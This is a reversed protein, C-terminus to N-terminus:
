DIAEQRAWALSSERQTPASSLPSRLDHSFPSFRKHSDHPTSSNQTCAAVRRVNCPPRMSVCISLRCWKKSGDNRFACYRAACQRGITASIKEKSLEPLPNDVYASLTSQWVQSLLRAQGIAPLYFPAVFGFRFEIEM